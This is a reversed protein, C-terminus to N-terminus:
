FLTCRNGTERSYELYHQIEDRSFCEETDLGCRIEHKKFLAYVREADFGEVETLVLFSVTRCNFRLLHYGKARRMEDEMACEMCLKCFSETTGIYIEEEGEKAEYRETCFTSNDHWDIRVALHCEARKNCIQAMVYVHFQYRDIVLFWRIKGTKKHTHRNLEDISSRPCAFM